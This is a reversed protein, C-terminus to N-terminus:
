PYGPWRGPSAALWARAGNTRSRIAATVSPLHIRRTNNLLKPVVAIDQAIVAHRIAVIDLREGMQQEELHRVLEGLCWLVLLAGCWLLATPGAQKTLVAVLREIM